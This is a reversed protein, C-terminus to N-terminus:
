KSYRTVKSMMAYYSRKKYWESKQWEEKARALRAQGEEKTAYEERAIKNNTNIFTVEYYTTKTM